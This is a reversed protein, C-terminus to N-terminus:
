PAAPRRALVALGDPVVVVHFDGPSISAVVVAAFVVVELLAANSFDVVVFGLIVLGLIV